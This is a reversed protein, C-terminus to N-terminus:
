GGVHALGPQALRRRTPAPATAHGPQDLLRAEPGAEVEQTQTGVRALDVGPQAAPPFVERQGFIGLLTGLQEVGRAGLVALATGAPRRNAAVAATRNGIRGLLATAAPALGSALGATPVRAHFAIGAAGARRAVGGRM